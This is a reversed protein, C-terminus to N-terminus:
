QDGYKKTPFPSKTGIFKTTYLSTNGESSSRTMVVLARSYVLVASVPLPNRIFIHTGFVKQLFCRLVLTHIIHNSDGARVGTVFIVM